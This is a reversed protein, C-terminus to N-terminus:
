EGEVDVRKGATVLDCAVWKLLALFLASALLTKFVECNWGGGEGFLLRGSPHDQRYHASTSFTGSSYL